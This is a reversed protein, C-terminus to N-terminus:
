AQARSPLWLEVAAPLIRADLHESAPRDRGPIIEDDLRASGGALRIHVHRAREIQGELSAGPDNALRAELYRVLAPRERETLLVFDLVGDFPDAHPALHVNPGISCMNLAEVLIYEGTRDVGDITLEWGRPRYRRAEDLLIRLARDARKDDSSAEHELVHQFLGVGVGEIFIREGWSGGAIGVDLWRREPEGLGELQELVPADLNLSTAINNATGLRAIALPVHRGVLARVTAAITGDGGAAVVLDVRRDLLEPITKRRFRRACSVDFGARELAATLDAASHDAAGANPNHILRARM